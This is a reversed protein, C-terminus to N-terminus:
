APVREDFGLLRFLECLYDEVWAGIGPADSERDGAIMLWRIADGSRVLWRALDTPVGGEKVVFWDRYLDRALKLTLSTGPSSLDGFLVVGHSDIVNQRTRDAYDTSQLARAGYLDAFEPRPGDETMFERPM